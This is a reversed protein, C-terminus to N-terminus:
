MLDGLILKFFVHKSKKLSATSYNKTDKGLLITDLFFFISFIMMAIATITMNRM